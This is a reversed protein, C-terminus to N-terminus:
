ESEDGAYIAKTGEFDIKFDVKKQRRLAYCLKEQNEKECYFLMFGGTGAGLLKGGIAGNSTASEYIEDIKNNSIKSALSKKLLWNEHLLKGISPFDDNILVERLQDVLKVMLKLVKEKGKLVINKKQEKLIESAKRQHGIYFLLLTDELKRYSEPKLFIPEVNVSGDTNFRIINLGGFAVAYQDQKGIPEGLRNIEIDCAEEALVKKAAFVHNRTYINHLMGVTFASSSGLGTGKPVDANSSIELGGKIGFKNLVEYVIPHELDDLNEVIETKSYKICLKDEEFYKHSSIYMYKNIATSLVAGGHNSYFAELDSGGGVFSIRFPTKTIVM